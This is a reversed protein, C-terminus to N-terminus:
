YSKHGRRGCHSSPTLRKRSRRLARRDRAGQSRVKPEEHRTPRFPLLRKKNNNLGEGCNKKQNKFKVNNNNLDQVLSSKDTVSSKTLNNIGLNKPDLISRRKLINIIKETKKPPYKFSDLVKKILEEKFDVM